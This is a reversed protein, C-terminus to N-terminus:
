PSLPRTLSLLGCGYAKARGIGGIVAQRFVEADTVVLHGDFRVPTITLRHNKRNGTLRSVPSAAVDPRGHHGAPIVFGHQDGKRALWGLQEDPDKLPVRTPVHPKDDTRVCRTANAQLRFAFKRGPAIADLVPQLSRVQASGILHSEPLRSWDPETASQVYHVIHDTQDLRWLVGHTQRYADSPQEEPFGSMVTRHMNQVDRADTRFQPSLPNIVLKTLFM